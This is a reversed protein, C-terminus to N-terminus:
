LALLRVPKPGSRRGPRSRDPFHKTSLAGVFLWTSKHYGSYSCLRLM